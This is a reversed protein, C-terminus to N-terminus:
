VGMEGNRLELGRREDKGRGHSIGGGRCGCQELILEVDDDGGDSVEVEELHPSGEELGVMENDDLIPVRGLDDLDRLAEIILEIIAVVDIPNETRSGIANGKLVRSAAAKAIHDGFLLIDEGNIIIAKHTRKERESKAEKNQYKDNTM